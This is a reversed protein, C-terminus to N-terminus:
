RDTNAIVARILEVSERNRNDAEDTSLGYRRNASLRVVTTQRSPDVFIFQNYVGIASFEGVDGDPIRWQYGYSLPFVHGGVLVKGRELHEENSTVSARVWDRPVIQRGHWSGDLGFLEGLKAYDRATLNLGGFVTEVGDCDLLWDGRCEMGLPTYLKEQMSDTISRGTSASLLHGLVQSVISRDNPASDAERQVFQRSLPRITRIRSALPSMAFM